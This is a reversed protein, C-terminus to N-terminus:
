PLHESIHEKSKAVTTARRVEQWQYSYCMFRVETLVAQLNTLELHTCPHSVDPWCVLSLSFGGGWMHTAGVLLNLCFLFPLFFSPTGRNHFLQTRWWERQVSLELEQLRRHSFKWGELATEPRGASVWGTSEATLKWAQLSQSGCAGRVGIHLFGNQIREGRVGYIDTPVRGSGM